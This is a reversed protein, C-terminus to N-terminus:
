GAGALAHGESARRNSTPRNRSSSRWGRKWNPWAGNLPKSGRMTARRRYRPGWGPAQQPVFGPPPAAAGDVPAPGGATLPKNRIETQQAAATLVVRKHVEQGRILCTLDVTGGVKSQRIIDALSQPSDVPQGDVAVIAAGLPVGAKEAPSGPGVFSVLGAIDPLNFQQQSEATISLTRIGLLPRGPRLVLSDTPAAVVSQGTTPPPLEDPQKGFQPLKRKDAPPREGLTVPVARDAGDRTIQIMVVAGPPRLELLRQMADLDRVPQDNVATILDGVKLGAKAAPGGAFVEVLRAGRGRDERDDAVLGLYGPQKGAATAGGGSQGSAVAQSQRRLQEEVRDLAPQGMANGAALVAAASFLLTSFRNM